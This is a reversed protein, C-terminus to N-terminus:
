RTPLGTSGAYAPIIGGRDESERHVGHAGRTHPSSGLLAAGPMWGMWHEGRIRPHDRSMGVSRTSASTSGAYAPIIRRPRPRPPTRLRAGRTHPSSGAVFDNATIDGTHEGRIRPHDGAQRRGLGLRRTSGAYAPIIGTRPSWRCIRWPAGRTHPSSGWPRCGTSTIIDHEGRIRPHDRLLRRGPQTCPTSGAYAPIIGKAHRGDRFDQHAGRTHPSSGLGDIM